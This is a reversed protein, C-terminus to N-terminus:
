VEMIEKEKHSLIEGAQETFRDTLKQIEDLARKEDDESIQHDKQMKKVKENGDRRVQRIATRVEETMQHAKKVLEKRREETLPPVPIRVVKGDSAPNLGLDASRIAKEIPAIMSKDWPQAVIMSPEPISLSAVQNLPTDNGYYSVVVGDLMALSARGTRLQKFESHLTEIAGHMRRDVDKMVDKTEM